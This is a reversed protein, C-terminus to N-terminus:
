GKSSDAQGRALFRDDAEAAEQNSIDAKEQAVMQDILTEWGRVKAKQELVLSRQYDITANIEAIKEDARRISLSLHEMWHLQGRIQEVRGTQSVDSQNEFTVVLQQRRDIEVQRRAILENLKTLRLSLESDEIQKLRSVRKTRQTTSM